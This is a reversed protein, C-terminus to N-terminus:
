WQARKCFYFPVFLFIPPLVILILGALASYNSVKVWQFQSQWDITYMNLMSALAMGVYIELYLRILGNWFLFKALYNLSKGLVKSKLLLNVLYLILYLVSLAIHGLTIYLPFGMNVLFNTSDIGCSQFNLSFADEEPFFFLKENISESPILEFNALETFVENIAM